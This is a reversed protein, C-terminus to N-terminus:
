NSVQGEAAKKREYPFHAMTLLHIPPIGPAGYNADEIVATSEHKCSVGSDLRTNETQRKKEGRGGRGM